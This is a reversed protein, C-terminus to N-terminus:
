PLRSLAMLGPAPLVVPLYLKRKGQFSVKVGHELFAVLSEGSAFALFGLAFRQLYVKVVVAIRDPCDCVYWVASRERALALAWIRSRWPEEEAATRRM